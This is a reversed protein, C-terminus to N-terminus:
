DNGADSEIKLTQDDVWSIRVRTPLRMLGGVGFARCQEGGAEDRAPDWADATRRGKPNLPV